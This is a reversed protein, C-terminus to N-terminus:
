PVEEEDIIPETEELEIEEDLIIEEEEIIPVLEEDVVDFENLKAVKPIKSKSTPRSNQDAGCKPCKKEPKGLDYFKVNCNFCTFKKGLGSTSQDHVSAHPKKPKNSLKSSGNSESKKSAGSTIKKQKKVM